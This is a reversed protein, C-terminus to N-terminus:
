NSILTIRPLRLRSLLLQSYNQCNQLTWCNNSYQHSLLFTSICLVHKRVSYYMQMDSVYYNYHSSTSNRLISAFQESSLTHGAFLAKALVHKIIYSTCQFGVDCALKLSFVFSLSHLFVRYRPNLALSTYTLHNNKGLDLRRVM